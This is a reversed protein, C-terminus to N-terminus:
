KKRFILDIDNKQISISNGSSGTPGNDRFYYNLIYEDGSYPTMEIKYINVPAAQGVKDLVRMITKSNLDFELNNSFETEYDYNISLLYNIKEYTLDAFFDDKIFLSGRIDERSEDHNLELQGNDMLISNEFEFISEDTFVSTLENTSQMTTLKVNEDGLVVENLGSNKLTITYDVRKTSIWQDDVNFKVELGKGSTDVDPTKGLNSSSSSPFSFKGSCGSFAVMLILVLIVIFKKYKKKDFNNM